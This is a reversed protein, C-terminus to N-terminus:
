EEDLYKILWNKNATLEVTRRRNTDNFLAKATYKKNMPQLYSNLIDFIYVLGVKTLRLLPM